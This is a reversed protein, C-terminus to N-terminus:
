RRYWQRGSDTRSAVICVDSLLALSESITTYRVMNVRMYHVRSDNAPLTEMLYSLLMVVHHWKM